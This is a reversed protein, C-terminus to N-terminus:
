NWRLKEEVKAAETKVVGLKICAGLFERAQDITMNANLHIEVRGDEVPEVSICGGLRSVGLSQLLADREGAVPDVHAKKQRPPTRSALVLAKAIKSYAFRKRRQYFVCQEPDLDDCRVIFVWGGAEDYVLDIPVERGRLTVPPVDDGAGVGAWQYNPDVKHLAARLEVEILKAEYDLEEDVM